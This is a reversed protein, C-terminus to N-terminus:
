LAPAPLIGEVLFQERPFSVSGRAFYDRKSFEVRERYVNKHLSQM